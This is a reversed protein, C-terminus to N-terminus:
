WDTEPAPACRSPGAGRRAAPRGRGRAHVPAQVALLDVLLRLEAVLRALDHLQGVQRDRRRHTRTGTMTPWASATQSSVSCGSEASCARSAARPRATPAPRPRERRRAPAPLGVVHEDAADAAVAVASPLPRARNRAAVVQALARRQVRDLDRLEQEVADASCGSGPPNVLRLPPALDATELGASESGVSSLAVQDVAGATEGVGEGDNEVGVGVGLGPELGLLVVGTTAVVRPLVIVPLACSLLSSPVARLSTILPPLPFSVM